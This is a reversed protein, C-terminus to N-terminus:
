CHATNRMKIGRDDNDDDDDDDDDDENDDDDSSAAAALLPLTSFASHTDNPRVM